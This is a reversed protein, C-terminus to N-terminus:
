CVATTSRVFRGILTAVIDARSYQAAHAAGAVEASTADPLHAVVEALWRRPVIPDRSGRLVLTPAPVRPLKQEIADGVLAAFGLPGSKVLHLTYDLV